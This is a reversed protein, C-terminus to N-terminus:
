PEVPENPHGNDLNSVSINTSDMTRQATSATTTSAAGWYSMPLGSQPEDPHEDVVMPDGRDDDLTPQKSSITITDTTDFLHAPPTTALRAGWDGGTANPRDGRSTSSFSSSM